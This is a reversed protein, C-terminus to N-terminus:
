PNDDTQTRCQKMLKRNREAFSVMDEFLALIKESLINEAATKEEDPVRRLTIKMIGEFVDSLLM